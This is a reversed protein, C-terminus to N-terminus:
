FSFDKTDLIRSHLIVNEDVLIHHCARNRNDDREHAEDAHARQGDLLIRVDCRWSYTNGRGVRTGVGVGDHLRHHLRQFLIDVTHRAHGVDGTRGRSGAVHADLHIEFLAGVGVDCGDIHLVTDATGRCEQRSLHGLHPHLHHLLLAVDKM